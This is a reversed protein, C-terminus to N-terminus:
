FLGWGNPGGDTTLTFLPADDNFNPSMLILEETFKSKITDMARQQDEGWVFKVDKKQLNYIPAMIHVFNKIWKCFMVCLGIFGRAETLNTCPKWNWIKTLKSKTPTRGRSHCIFSLMELQPVCFFCKMANLTLGSMKIAQFIERLNHLHEAVWLRIGDKNVENKYDSVPGKVGFNDVFVWVKTGVWHRLIKTM